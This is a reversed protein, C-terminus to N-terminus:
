RNKKQLQIEMTNKQVKSTSTYKQKGVVRFGRGIAVIGVMLIEDDILRGGIISGVLRLWNVGLVVDM